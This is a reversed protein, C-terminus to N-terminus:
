FASAPRPSSPNPYLTRRRRLNRRRCGGPGCAGATTHDMESDHAPEDVVAFEIGAWAGACDSSIFHAADDDAPTRWGAAPQGRGDAARSSIAPRSLRRHFPRFLGKHRVLGPDLKFRHTAPEA